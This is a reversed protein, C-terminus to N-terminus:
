LLFGESPHSNEETTSHLPSLTIATGTSIDLHRNYWILYYISQTVKILERTFSHELETEICIPRYHLLINAVINMKLTNNNILYIYM